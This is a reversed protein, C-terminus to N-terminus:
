SSDLLGRQEWAVARLSAPLENCSPRTRLGDSGDTKCGSLPKRPADRTDWGSAVVHLRLSPLQCLRHNLRGARSFAEKDQPATPPLDRCLWGDSFVPLNLLAKGLAGGAPM